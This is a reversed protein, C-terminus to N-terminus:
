INFKLIKICFNDEASFLRYVFLSMECYIWSIDKFM